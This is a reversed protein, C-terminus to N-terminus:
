ISLQNVESQGSSNFLVLGAKIFLYSVGGIVISILPRVIYWVVWNEDWEKKVCAQIYVARLCYVTGGVGGALLCGFVTLISDKVYSLYFGLSIQLCMLIILYISIRVLYKKPQWQYENNKNTM